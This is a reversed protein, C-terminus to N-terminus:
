DAEFWKMTMEWAQEITFGEAILTDYKRKWAKAQMADRRQMEQEFREEDLKDLAVALEKRIDLIKKEAEDTLEKRKKEFEVDEPTDEYNYLHVPTKTTTTNRNTMSKDEKINNKNAEVFDVISPMAILYGDSVPVIRARNLMEATWGKEGWTEYTAIPPAEQCIDYVDGVTLRGYHNATEKFIDLYDEAEYRNAFAFIDGNLM